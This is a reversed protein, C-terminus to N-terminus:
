SINIQIDGDVTLGTNWSIIKGTFNYTGAIDSMVRYTYTIDEITLLM